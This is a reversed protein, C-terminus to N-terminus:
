TLGLEPHPSGPHSRVETGAKRASSLAAPQKPIYNDLTPAPCTRPQGKRHDSSVRKSTPQNEQLHLM